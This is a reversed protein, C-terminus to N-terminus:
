VCECESLFAVDDDNGSPEIKIMKFNSDSHPSQTTETFFIISFCSYFLIYLILIYGISVIEHIFFILKLGM